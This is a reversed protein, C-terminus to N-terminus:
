FQLQLSGFATLQNTDFRGGIGLRIQLAIEVPWSIFVEGIRAMIARPHMKM